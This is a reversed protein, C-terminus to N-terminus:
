RWRVTAVEIPGAHGERRREPAARVCWRRREGTERSVLIEDAEALAGIRSAAHVGVGSWDAGESTAEAHHLGIRVRPAFGHETRHHDLARQIAVACRLADRAADFTLWPTERAPRSRAAFAM